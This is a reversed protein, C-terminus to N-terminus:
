VAVDYLKRQVRGTWYPRMPTTTQMHVPDREWALFADRSEWESLLIYSTTGDEAEPEPEAGPMIDTGTSHRLLEDRIHGPTGKVKRTVDAFAAEFADQDESRIKALVMVRTRMHM